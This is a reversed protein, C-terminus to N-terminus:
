LTDLIRNSGLRVIYLSYTAPLSPLGRSAETEWRYFSPVLVLFESLKLILQALAQRISLSNSICTLYEISYTTVGVRREKRLNKFLNNM